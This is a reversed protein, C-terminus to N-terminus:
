FTAENNLSRKIYLYIFHLTIIVLPLIVFGRKNARPHCIRPSSSNYKSDLFQQPNDFEGVAIDNFERGGTHSRTSSSGSFVNDGNVSYYQWEGKDNQILAAIHQNTGYGLNLVTTSDGKLDM